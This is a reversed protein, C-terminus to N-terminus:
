GAETYLAHDIRQHMNEIHKIVEESLQQDRDEAFLLDHVINLATMMAVREISIMPASESVKRMKQNLYQAAQELGRRNEPSCKLQFQRDLLQIDVRNEVSM